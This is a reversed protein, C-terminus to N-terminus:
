DLFGVLSEAGKLAVGVHWPVVGTKDLGRVRALLGLGRYWSLVERLVADPSRPQLWAPMGDGIKPGLMDIVDVGLSPLSRTTLTGRKLLLGSALTRKLEYPGHLASFPLVLGWTEDTADILYADPDAPNVQDQAESTPIPTGPAAATAGGSSHAEPSVGTMAGAQPTSAPTMFGAGGAQPVAPFNATTDTASIQLTPTVDIDLLHIAWNESAQEKWVDKEWNRMSGVRAVFIRWTTTPKALSLTIDRVEALVSMGDLDRVWFSTNFQYRGTNDSWAATLWSNDSSIAYAVHLIQAEELLSKPPREHLTFNIRRPLPSILQVSPASPIVWVSKSDDSERLPIRDYVQSALSSLWAPEPLALADPCAIRDLSVVQLVFESSVDDDSDELFAQQLAWFCGCLYKTLAEDKFPSFMYIVVAREEEIGNEMRILDGFAACANRMSELISRTSRDEQLQYGILGDDHDSYTAGRVHSGLKSNEYALGINDLFDQVADDIDSSGGEPYVAYATVDKPGSAPELSLPEWYQLSSPLMEWSSGARQLHVPPPQIAFLHQAGAPGGNARRPTPPRPQNKSLPAQDAHTAIISALKSFDCGMSATFVQRVATSAITFASTLSRDHEEPPLTDTLEDRFDTNPDSTNVATNISQQAVIQAISILDDQSFGFLDWLDSDPGTTPQMFKRCNKWVLPRDGFRHRSEQLGRLPDKPGDRSLLLDLVANYDIASRDESISSEVDSENDTYIRPSQVSAGDDGLMRKRKGFTSPPATDESEVSSISESDSDSSSSDNIATDPTQDSPQQASGSRKLHLGLKRRPLDIISHSRSPKLLPPGSQRLDTQPGNNAKGSFRGLNRYKADFSTIDGKFVVPSFNSDRRPKATDPASNQDRLSSAPVPSPLFTQKIQFPSLPPTRIRPEPPTTKLPPDPVPVQDAEESVDGGTDMANEVLHPASVDQTMDSATPPATPPDDGMAVPEIPHDQTTINAPLAEGLRNSSRRRNASPADTDDFFSFDADTVDVDPAGFMEEDMDGFLEDTSDKRPPDTDPAPNSTDSPQRSLTYDETNTAPGADEAAPASALSNISNMADAFVGPLIVDPPTPYIGNINVQDQTRINVPSSLSPPDPPADTSTMAEAEQKKREELLEKDRDDKALFWKEASTLPNHYQGSRVWDEASHELSPLLPDASEFCLKTPWLCNHGASTPRVREWPSRPISDLSPKPSPVRIRTWKTEDDLSIPVATTHGLRNKVTSKWTEERTRQALRARAERRMQRRFKNADSDTDKLSLSSIDQALSAPTGSPALLIPRFDDVPESVNRYDTSVVEPLLLLNGMATMQARLSLLSYESLTTGAEIDEPSATPIMWTMHSVRVANCKQGLTISLSEEVASLFMGYINQNTINAKPDPGARILSAIELRGTLSLPWRLKKM